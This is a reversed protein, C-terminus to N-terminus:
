TRTATTTGAHRAHDHNKRPILGALGLLGLLGLLGWDFDDDETQVTAVDRDVGLDEQASVGATLALSLAAISFLTCFRKIM